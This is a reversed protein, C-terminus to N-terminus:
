LPREVSLQRQLRLIHHRRCRDLVRLRVEGGLPRLFALGLGEHRQVGIRDLSRLRIQAPDLGFQFLGFRRHRLFLGNKPRGFCVEIAGDDPRRDVSHDDASKDVFSLRQRDAELERVVKM